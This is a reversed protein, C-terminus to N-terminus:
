ANGADTGDADAAARLIDELTFNKVELKDVFMGLHKGVNVLAAQQDHIKVEIGEKTTKVGAYLRAARRSLQRTDNVHVREVGEGFCEPCDPHAARRPDWGPGGDGNAFRFVDRPKRRTSETFDRM